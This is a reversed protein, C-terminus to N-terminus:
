QSPPDLGRTKYFPTQLTTHGHLKAHQLNLQKMSTNAFKIQYLIYIHISVCCNSMTHGDHKAIHFQTKLSKQAAQHASRLHGSSNFSAYNCQAISVATPQLDCQLPETLHTSTAVPARKLCTKQLSDASQLSVQRCHM